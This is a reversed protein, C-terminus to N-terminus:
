LLVNVVVVRLEGGPAALNLAAPELVLEAEAPLNHGCAQGVEDFMWLRHLGHHAHLLEVDRFELACRLRLWNDLREHLKYQRRRASVKAEAPLILQLCGGQPSMM